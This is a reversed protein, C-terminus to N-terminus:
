GGNVIINTYLHYSLINYLYYSVGGGGEGVIAKHYQNFKSNITFFKRFSM